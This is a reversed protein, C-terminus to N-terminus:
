YAGFYRRLFWEVSLLLFLVLFLWRLNILSKNKTTSYIVPAITNENQILSVLQDSEELSVMQGGYRDSLLNLLGHNATTAYSELQIPQISFAGSFTLQEGDPNTTATFRYSGVPLIGANLTYANGAKNFVYTYEKGDTDSITISVDPENILEYSQNYLEADMIVPENEDFINKPLSVRFKRKDEKLSVFQVIKSLFGDFLFHDENQLYNFLRWKWIGEGALVGTRIGNEEGLTLLPFQTDIKRIRQYLLVQAGPGESFEGFPTILPPYNPIEGKLEDEITFYNFGPAFRAQVDNTNRGDTQLKLLSQVQNFRNFDTQMGTIFWRPTKEKDLANLIFSADNTKSPLQHLIAFDYEAIKGDFKKITQITVEYNKNTEISQKIATLDPHPANALVLSKQRADLVDVFIDKLNNVRTVEGEVESLTFRFRQLGSKNADLVIEQTKFFDNRDINIPISQLLTTSSGSVQYVNLQTAQSTCNQAAVDVQVSFQDGLYAIKNHFARKILLDKQPTTDGVAITYIPVSFQGNFYAPNSGENFIGDSAMVIAGLNEGSYLDNVTKLLDTLNSVKDTFGTDLGPRVQTGFAYTRIDFDDGLAAQLDELRRTLEQKDELANAVSESADQGIIIIPKKTTRETAKLLPSLLFLSIM